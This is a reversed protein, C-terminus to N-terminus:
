RSYTVAFYVINQDATQGPADSERKYHTLTLRGSWHRSWQQTLFATLTYDKDERDIQDYQINEGGAGFGITLLPRLRWGVSANLGRITQDLGLGNIAETEDFPTTQIYDLMRYYPMVSFDVLADHFSYGVSLARELYAQSTVQAVGTTIADPIPAGPVPVVIMDTAADSYQYAFNAAFASRETPHWTVTARALPNDRDDTTNSSYKLWTYGLDAVLDLKSWKRTYRGFLNYRSYDPSVDNNQYDIREDSLNASITSISSLDKIARLVGAARQSNFEDTKDAYSNIYSVAAQGRMTEGLRFDFIPGIAFVNSQQQNGPTNPDLANIPQVGLYDEVILNFREPAIAWNLHAALQSRFEDSFEGGTFDRYQVFGNASAQVTSGQEDVTFGFSPELIDTSTPDTESLTINDNHEVGMTAQYDFTVALAAPSLVAFLTAVSARKFLCRPM